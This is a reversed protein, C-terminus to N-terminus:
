PSPTFNCSAGGGAKQRVQAPDITCELSKVARYISGAAGSSAVGIEAFTAYLEHAQRGSLSIKRAGFTLTCDKETIDVDSIRCTAEDAKVAFTGGPPFHAAARGNLYANLVAKQVQTQQPSHEAILAALSLASNGTASDAFAAPAAALLPIALVISRMM